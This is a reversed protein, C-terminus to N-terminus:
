QLLSTGHARQLSMSCMEDHFLDDLIHIHSNALNQAHPFLYSSTLAILSPPFEYFKIIRPETAM